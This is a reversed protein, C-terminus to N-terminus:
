WGCQKIVKIKESIDRAYSMGAEVNWGKNYSAWVKMWDDGYQMRWYNLNIIAFESSLRNSKVLESAVIQRNRHTDPRGSYIIANKLTIHHIGFSPDNLNMPVDGASSEKWAIAALSYSLDYPIGYMYASLLTIKQRMSFDYKDLADCGYSVNCLCLFLFLVVSKIM